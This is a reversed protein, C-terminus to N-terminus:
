FRYGCSKCHFQKGLNGSFVGAVAFSAYKKLTGIKEVDYSKCTPCQPINRTAQYPIYRDDQTSQCNSCSLTEGEKLVAYSDNVTEFKDLDIFVTTGCSRCRLMVYAPSRSRIVSMIEFMM